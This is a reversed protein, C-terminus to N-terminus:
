SKVKGQQKLRMYIAVIQAESMEDVLKAWQHSKYVQKLADQM